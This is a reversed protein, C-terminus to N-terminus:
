FILQFATLISELCVDASTLQTELYAQDELQHNKINQAWKTTGPGHVTQYEAGNGM